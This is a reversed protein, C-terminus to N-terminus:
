HFKHSNSDTKRLFQKIDQQKVSHKGIKCRDSKHTEVYSHKGQNRLNRRPSACLPSRIRSFVCTRRRATWHAVFNVQFWCFDMNLSLNWNDLVIKLNNTTHNNTATIRFFTCCYYYGSYHNLYNTYHCNFILQLTQFICFTITQKNIANGM